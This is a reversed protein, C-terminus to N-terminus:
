LCVFFTLNFKVSLLFSDRTQNISVKVVSIMLWNFDRGKDMM